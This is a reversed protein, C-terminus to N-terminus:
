TMIVYKSEDWVYGEKMNIYSGLVVEDGEKIDAVAKFEWGGYQANGTFIYECNYTPFDETVNVVCGIHCSPTAFSIYSLVSEQDDDSGKDDECGEDNIEVKKIDGEYFPYWSFGAVDSQKIGASELIDLLISRKQDPPM